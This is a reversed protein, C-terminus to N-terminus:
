EESPLCAKPDSGAILQLAGDLIAAHFSMAAGREWPESASSLGVVGASGMGFGGYFVLKCTRFRPGYSLGGRRCAHYFGSTALAGFPLVSRLPSFLPAPGAPVCSVQQGSDAQAHVKGDLRAPPPSLQLHSMRQEQSASLLFPRLFLLGLLECQEVARAQLGGRAQAAGFLSAVGLVSIHNAGPLVVGGLVRHDTYLSAAAGTVGRQWSCVGAFGAALPIALGEAALPNLLPRWLPM